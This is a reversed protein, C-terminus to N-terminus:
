YVQMFCPEFENLLKLILPKVETNLFDIAKQAEDHTEGTERVQTGRNETNKYADAKNILNAEAEDSDIPLETTTAKTEGGNFTKNETTYIVKAPADYTLWASALRAIKDAYPQMFLDAKEDLKMFFLLDTEFGIEHDCFHKKFIDEFGDILSFSAPLAGGRKLYEALLTTYKAM